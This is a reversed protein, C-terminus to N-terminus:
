PRLAMGKVWDPIDFVKVLVETSGVRIIQTDQEDGIDSTM